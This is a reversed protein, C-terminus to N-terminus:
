EDDEVAFEKAILERIRKAGESDSRDQYVTFRDLTENNEDVLEIRIDM